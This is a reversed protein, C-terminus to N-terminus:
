IKKKCFLATGLIGVVMFIAEFGPVKETGEAKPTPAATTPNFQQEMGQGISFTGADPLRDYITHKIKDPNIYVEGTGFKLGESSIWKRSQETLSIEPKTSILATDVNMNMSGDDNGLFEMPI